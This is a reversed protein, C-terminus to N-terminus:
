RQRRPSRHDRSGQESAQKIGDNFGNQSIDGYVYGSLSAARKEFDNNILDVDDTLTLPIM